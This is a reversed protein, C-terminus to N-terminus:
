QIPADQKANKNLSQVQLIGSLLSRCGGNISLSVVRDGETQGGRETEKERHTFSVNRKREGEKERNRETHREIERERQTM